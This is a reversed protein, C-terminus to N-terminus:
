SFQRDVCSDRWMWEDRVKILSPRSTEARAADIADRLSDLDCVDAVTVVHWNYAEYRAAVDETFSLDTGGDITILNDDYLVILKGACSVFVLSHLPFSPDCVGYRTGPPRGSLLGGLVSGGASLRGRLDCVHLPGSCYIGGTAM